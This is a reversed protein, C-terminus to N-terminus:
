PTVGISAVLGRAEAATGAPDPVGLKQLPGQRIQGAVPDKQRSAASAAFFRCEL